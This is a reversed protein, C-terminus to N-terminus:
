VSSGTTGATRTTTCSGASPPPSRPSSTRSSSTRTRSPASTPCACTSPPTTPSPWSSPPATAPPRTRAPVRRRRLWSLELRAWIPQEHPRPHRECLHHARTNLKSSLAQTILQPILILCRQLRHSNRAHRLVVFRDSRLLGIQESIRM